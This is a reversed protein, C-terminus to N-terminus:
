GFCHYIVAALAFQGLLILPMGWVFYWHRTKHHFIRMGLIAGISGGMVATSFLTKESIRWKQRKARSKDIGMTCFSVFNIGLLYVALVMYKM